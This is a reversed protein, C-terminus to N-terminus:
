AAGAREKLTSVDLVSHVRIVAGPVDLADKHEKPFVKRSLCEIVRADDEIAGVQVLADLTSRVMKDVDPRRDPWTVRKKPASKPKIVTFTMEICVPGRLMQGGGALKHMADVTAWKVAERWPRVKKSSEIMVGNGIHRKSGQPGVEGYVSIVLGV